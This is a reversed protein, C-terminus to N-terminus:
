AHLAWAASEEGAVVKERAGINKRSIGLNGCDYAPM